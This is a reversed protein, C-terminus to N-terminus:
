QLRNEYNQQEYSQSCIGNYNFASVTDFNVKIFVPFRLKKANLGSETDITENLQFLILIIQESKIPM